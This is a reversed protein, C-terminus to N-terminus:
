GGMGRKLGVYGVAIGVVGGIADAVPTDWLECSGSGLVMDYYRNVGEVCGQDGKCEAIAKAREKTTAIIYQSEAAARESPSAIFKDYIVNAAAYGGFVLLVKGVKAGFVALDDWPTPTKRATESAAASVGDPVAPVVVRPRRAALSRVGPLGGGGESPIEVGVFAEPPMDEDGEVTLLVFDMQDAAGGLWPRAKSGAALVRLAETIEAEEAVLADYWVFLADWTAPDWDGDTPYPNMLLAANYFRALSDNWRGVARMINIPM